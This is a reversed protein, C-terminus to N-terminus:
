FTELVSEGLTPIRHDIDNLIELALKKKEPSAFKEVVEKVIKFNGSVGRSSDQVVRPKNRAFEELVIRPLLIHVKGLDIMELLVHLLTSNRHDKPLDLWVCTDPLIHFM